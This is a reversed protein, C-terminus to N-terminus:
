SSTLPPLEKIAPPLALRAKLSRWVGLTMGDFSPSVLDELESLVHCDVSEYEVFELLPIASWDRSIRKSIIDYLVGANVNRWSLHSIIDGLLDANM